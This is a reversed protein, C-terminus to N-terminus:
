RSARFSEMNHYRRRMFRKYINRIWLRHFAVFAMGILMLAAQTSSEGLFMRLVSIFAVPAFMATLEAVVQVYNASFGGRSTFRTNLPITRDNYVAMQMLLCHVPGAVFCMMSLLTFLTYKGALVTPLMFLLPLLLLACHFVYKARLLLEISEKRVMLGDIYNGEACMARILLMAGYLAFTYVVWFVRSFSDQYFDTFSILASMLLVLLTSFIFTKRLNGNRVLSRVELKLYEGAVGYRDLPWLLDAPSVSAEETGRSEDYTLRFQVRKNVEVFAVLVLLALAWPSLRWHAFGAGWAAFFAFFSDVGCFLSPAYLLGYAVAPLLWWALSRNILSRVLLYWQSNVLVFLHVSLVLGAVSLFGHSFMSTMVAYPVTLALWFLNCPSALSSLVFSEVCALKPIPLLLYPKILQAPTHQGIFRLLFDATLIFPLFGFLFECSDYCSSGNAALALPISLLALYAAVLCVAVGVFLRARRNQGHIPSRRESLRIHRRLTLLLRLKDM